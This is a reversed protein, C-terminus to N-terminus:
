VHENGLHVVLPTDHLIGVCQSWGGGGMQRRRVFPGTHSYIVITSNLFPVKIPNNYGTPGPSCSWHDFDHSSQPCTISRIFSLVWM